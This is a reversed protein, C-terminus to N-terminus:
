GLNAAGRSERLLLMLALGLLPLLQLMGLVPYGAQATWHIEELVMRPRLHDRHLHGPHVAAPLASPEAPTGSGDPLHRRAPAVGAPGTGRRAAGATGRVVAARRRDVGDAQRRRRPRPGRRRHRRRARRGRTAQATGMAGALV